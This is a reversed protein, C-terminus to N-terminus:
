TVDIKLFNTDGWIGYNATILQLHVCTFILNKRLNEKFEVDSMKKFVQKEIVPRM